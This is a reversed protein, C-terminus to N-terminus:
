IFRKSFRYNGILFFLLSWGLLVALVILLHQGPDNNIVTQIADLAWGQPVILSVMNLAQPPNPISLTFIKSMGILGTITVGAGLAVSAQKSNKVFSILLIGFSSATITTCIVVLSLAFLPGWQFKFILWGSLLLIILQIFVTIFSSLFKGNLIVRKETPTTFLRPMTGNEEETLVSQMTSAGTYFAYFVMMAAMLMQVFGSMFSDNNDKNASEVHLLKNETNLAASTQMYEESLTSFQEDIILGETQLQEMTVTTAILPDMISDIGQNVINTVLDPGLTLAPDSYIEVKTKDSFQLMTESFNEPIIVAADAQQDDVAQKASTINAAITVSLIDGMKEDQLLDVLIFSLADENQDLNVVQVPIIPLNFSEETEGPNGLLFFFLATMLLPVGFMFIIASLSRFSQKLDKIAIDFAKM